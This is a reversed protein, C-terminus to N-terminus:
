GWKLRSWTLKEKRLTEDVMREKGLLREWTENCKKEIEKRIKLSKEQLRAISLHPIDLVAATTVDKIYELHRKLGLLNADKTLSQAISKIERVANAKTKEFAKSDSLSTLADRQPDTFLKSTVAYFNKAAKSKKSRKLKRLEEAKRHQM